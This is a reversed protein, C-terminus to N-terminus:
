LTLDATNPRRGAQAQRPLPLKMLRFAPKDFQRRRCVPWAFETRLTAVKREISLTVYVDARSTLQELRAALDVLAPGNQIARASVVAAAATGIAANQVRLDFLSETPKYTETPFIFGGIDTDSSSQHSAWQTLGSCDFDSTRNNDTTAAIVVGAIAGGASTITYTFTIPDGLANVDGCAVSIGGISGTQGYREGFMFTNSTGDKISAEGDDMRVAGQTLQQMIQQFQQAPDNKGNEAMVGEQPM